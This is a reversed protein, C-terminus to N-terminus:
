RADCPRVAGKERRWVEEGDGLGGRGLRRQGGKGEGSGSGGHGLGGEEGREAGAEARRRWRRRVMAELGSASVVDLEASALFRYAGVGLEEGTEEEIRYKSRRNHPPM